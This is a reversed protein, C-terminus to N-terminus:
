GTIIIWYILFMISQGSIRKYIGSLGVLYPRHRIVIDKKFITKKMECVIGKVRLIFSDRKGTAWSFRLLLNAEQSCGQM